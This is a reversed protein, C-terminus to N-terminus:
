VYRAMGAKLKFTAYRLRSRVGEISASTAAAIEEVTLAAEQRLLWAERQALPLRALLDVLRRHLEERLANDYPEDDAGDQLEAFAEQQAADVSVEALRGRRRYHDMLLHHALTFLWQRFRGDARYATAQDVVKLWLAGFCDDAHDADLQRRFYRYSAGRYRQYLHGFAAEDGRAFAAMLDDDTPEPGTM